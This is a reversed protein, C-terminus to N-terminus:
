APLGSLGLEEEALRAVEPDLPPPTIDVGHALASAILELGAIRAYRKDNAPIVHWPAADTSTRDVMKNIAKEYHEWQRRNRLDETTLKWHKYPSRARETFRRLQEDATIHLFLKVIRAGSDVLSQEFGNIEHYARKWEEKSILKEVREVLVRGYWSRDFVAITGPEPVRVWFRYLYHRGQEDPKPAGIPWVKVGRPDLDSSLRRILGGKGSADWGELVILARHGFRRYALEIARLQFQLPELREEYEAKSLRPTMDLDALRFDDKSM